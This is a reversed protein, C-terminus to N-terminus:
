QSSFFSRPAFVITDLVELKKIKNGDAPLPRYPNEIIEGNADTKMILHDPIM